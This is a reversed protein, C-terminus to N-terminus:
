KVIFNKSVQEVLTLKWFVILFKDTQVTVCIVNFNANKPMEQKVIFTLQNQLSLPLKKEPFNKWICSCDGLLMIRSTLWTKHLISIKISPLHCFEQRKQLKQVVLIGVCLGRCKRRRRLFGRWTFLYQRM